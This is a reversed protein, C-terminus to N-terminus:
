YMLYGYPTCVVYKLGLKIQDDLTDEFHRLDITKQIKCPLMNLVDAHVLM